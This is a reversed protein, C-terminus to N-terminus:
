QGEKEYQIGQVTGLPLYRRHSGEFDYLLPGLYHPVPLYRGNLAAHVLKSQM